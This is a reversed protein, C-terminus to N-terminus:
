KCWWCEARPDVLRLTTSLRYTFHCIPSEWTLSHVRVCVFMCLVRWFCSQTFASVSTGVHHSIRKTYEREYAGLLHLFLHSLIHSTTWLKFLNPIICKHVFATFFYDSCLLLQTSYHLLMQIPHQLLLISLRFPSYLYFIRCMFLIWHFKNVLDM